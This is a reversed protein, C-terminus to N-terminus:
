LEGIRKLYVGHAYKSGAEREAPTMKEWTASLADSLRKQEGLYWTAPRHRGEGDREDIAAHYEDILRCYEALRLM